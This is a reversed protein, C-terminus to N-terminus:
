NIDICTNLPRGIEEAYAAAAALDRAREPAIHDSHGKKPGYPM